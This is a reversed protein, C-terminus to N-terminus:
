VSVTSGITIQIMRSWNSVMGSSSSCAARTSPQETHPANRRMTSGIARGPMTAAKM